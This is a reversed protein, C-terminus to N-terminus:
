LYCHNTNNLIHHANKHIPFFYTKTICVCNNALESYAKRVSPFTACLFFIISSFDTFSTASSLNGNRPSLM